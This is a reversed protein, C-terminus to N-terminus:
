LICNIFYLCSFILGLIIIIHEKNKITILNFIYVKENLFNENTLSQVFPVVASLSLIEAIGTFLTLLLLFIFQIKRKKEVHFFLNKLYNLLSENNM